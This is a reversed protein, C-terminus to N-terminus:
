RPVEIGFERAIMRLTDWEGFARQVDASKGEVQATGNGYDFGYTKTLSCSREVVWADFSLGTIDGRRKM